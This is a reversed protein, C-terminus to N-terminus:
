PLVGWVLTLVRLLILMTFLSFALVGIRLLDARVYTYQFHDRKSARRRSSFIKPAQEDSVEVSQRRRAKRGM